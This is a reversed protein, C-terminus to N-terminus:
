QRDGEELVLVDGVLVQNFMLSAATNVKLGQLRGDENCWARHNTGPVGEIYGGVAEQLQELTLKGRAGAGMVGDVRTGDAKLIFAM